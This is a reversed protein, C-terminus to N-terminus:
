PDVGVFFPLAYGMSVPSMMAMTIAAIMMRARSTISGRM